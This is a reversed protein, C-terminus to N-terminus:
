ISNRIARVFIEFKLSLQYSHFWKILTRIVIHRTSSSRGYRQERTRCKTLWFITRINDMRLVVNLKKKRRKEHPCIWSCSDPSLSMFLLILWMKWVVHPTNLCINYRHMNAFTNCPIKNHDIYTKSIKTPESNPSLIIM